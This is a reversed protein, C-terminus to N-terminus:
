IHVCEKPLEQFALFIVKKYDTHSRFLPINSNVTSGLLKPNEHEFEGFYGM